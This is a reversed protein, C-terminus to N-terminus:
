DIPKLRDSTYANRPALLEWRMPPFQNKATKRVEAVTFGPNSLPYKDCHQLAAGDLDSCARGYLIEMGGHPITYDAAAFTKM